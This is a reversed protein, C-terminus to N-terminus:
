VVTPPKRIDLYLGIRDAPLPKDFGLYLAPTSDEVPDFPAFADGRWGTNRTHDGWRFDNYALCYQPAQKPSRYLYGIFLEDLVPPRPEIIPVFNVNNQQDTWSVLRMRSYSGGAQRVRLWLGGISNVQNAEWSDACHFSVKGTALLNM